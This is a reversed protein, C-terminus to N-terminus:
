ALEIPLMSIDIKGSMNSETTFHVVSDKVKTTTCVTASTIRFRLPTPLSSVQIKMEKDKHYFSLVESAKAISAASLLYSKKGIEALFFM